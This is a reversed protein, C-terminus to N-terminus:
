QAQRPSEPTATRVPFNRVIQRCEALAQSLYSQDTNFRISLSASPSGHVRAIGQVTAAGRKNLEVELSLWEEDTRFSAQGELDAVIRALHETFEAFDHTTLAAEYDAYFPGVRIAIRAKLWNADSNEVASEREYGLVSIKVESGGGRITTENM